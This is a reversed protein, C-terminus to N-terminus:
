AAARAALAPHHVEGTVPANISFSGVPGKYEAFGHGSTWDKLQMMVTLTVPAGQGETGQLSVLIPTHVGQQFFTGTVDFFLTPGGIGDNVHAQGTIKRIPTGTVAASIFLWYTRPNTQDGLLWSIQFTQVGPM